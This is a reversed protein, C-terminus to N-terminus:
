DGNLVYPMIYIASFIWLYLVVGIGRGLFFGILRATRPNEELEYCQHTMYAISIALCAIFLIINFIIMWKM